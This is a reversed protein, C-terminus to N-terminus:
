PNIHYFAGPETLFTNLTYPVSNPCDNPNPNPNPHKGFLSTTKMFYSLSMIKDAYFERDNQINKILTYIM